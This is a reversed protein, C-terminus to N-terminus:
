ICEDTLEAHEGQYRPKRSRQFATFILFKSTKKESTQIKGSEELCACTNCKYRCHKHYIINAGSWKLIEASLPVFTLNDCSSFLVSLDAKLRVLM